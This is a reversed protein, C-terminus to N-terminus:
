SSVAKPSYETSVMGPLFHSYLAKEKSLQNNIHCKKRTRQNVFVKRLEIINLSSKRFNIRLHCNSILEQFICVASLVM